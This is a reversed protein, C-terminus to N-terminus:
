LDLQVDDEPSACCILTMGEAAGQLPTPSFRVHGGLLATECTHCVGTRCSWRVPVDCAEALDLLTRHRPHWRVSLGTRVFSVLPGSGEEGLPAHPATSAISQIGPRFSDGAGFLETAIQESTFGRELLAASLTRMFGAPGCLYFRADSPIDLSVLADIDLHGLRDFQEGELESACPQSYTILTKADPLQALLKRVEELFPHESGNRTGYAWYVMRTRRSSEKVVAHLMALLPTIGIGAGCFVIPRGDDALVFDGHPSSISVVAGVDVHDHLYTSGAGEGRKVSIRYEGDVSADSISYSRLITEHPAGQPLKVVVFQGPRPPPLPDRDVSEMVFSRVRATEWKTAAIRVMRFGQWLPPFAVARALGANGRAQPGAALLAEFSQRWGASLAPMRLARRLQEEPHDPLYLLADVDAISMGDGAREKVILDGPGLLGEELVRCYFGPRRHSVLLAPMQPENMRIGVRYCTVRPQTVELLADGIRYQDGISVEDDALGDVTLNEGFQGYQELTRGLVGEWYRYSQIQYVMVARHEGGHGQLDGQGDGDINLRRAMVRGMVPTKWIATHVIQGQWPVDKPLGVNVSLLLAM